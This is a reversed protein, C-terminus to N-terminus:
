AFALSFIAFVAVFRSVSSFVDITGFEQVFCCFLNAFVIKWGRVKLIVFLNTMEYRRLALTLLGTQTEMEEQLCM